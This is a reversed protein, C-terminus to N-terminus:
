TKAPSPSVGYVSNSSTASIVLDSVHSSGPATITMDTCANIASKAITIDTTLDTQMVNQAFVRQQTLNLSLSTIILSTITNSVDSTRFVSM